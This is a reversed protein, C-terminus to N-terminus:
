GFLISANSLASYHVCSSSVSSRGRLKSNEGENGEFRKRHIFDSSVIVHEPKGTM